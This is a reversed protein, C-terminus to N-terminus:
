LKKGENERLSIAKFDEFDKKLINKWSDSLESIGFSAAYAIKQSGNAFRLLDVYSLRAFNPNWVQDSGVVFYDYDKSIDSFATCMKPAFKINKNFEDFSKYRKTNKNKHRVIKKVLYKLKRYLFKDRDNLTVNNKLTEVECGNSKLVEQLAYNQLRNGYNNNDYITIIGIRKM